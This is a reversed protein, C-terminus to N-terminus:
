SNLPYQCIFSLERDCSIDNWNRNKFAIELAVCNESTTSHTSRYLDWSNFTALPTGDSYIFYGDRTRDDLGIWLMAWDDVSRRILDKIFGQQSQSKIAALLGGNSKCINSADDYSKTVNMIEYCFDGFALGASCAPSVCKGNAVSVDDIAIDGHFDHGRIAEFVIQFSIPSNIQLRGANWDNGQQGTKFWLLKIHNDKTKIYVNLTNIDAGHMHYFFQLCQANSASLEPSILRTRENLIRPNSAELFMYYGSLTGTTHDTVPGTDSSSTAGTNREWDFDDTRDQIFGCINPKEFDCSFAPKPCSGQKLSLDDLALDGHYDSGRIAEFILRYSEDAHFELQSKLWLNEQSGSKSWLLHERGRETSLIVSLDGAGVGFMHYHFELCADSITPFLPTALRAVDGTQRPRSAEIYIYVGSKDGSTHDASPGTDESPTSGNYLHWDFDDSSSQLMNCPTEFDCNWVSASSISTTLINTTSIEEDPLNTSPLSTTTLTINNTPSSLPPTKAFGTLPESLTSLKNMAFITILYRRDPILTGVTVRTKTVEMQVSIVNNIEQVKIRYRSVGPTISATWSFILSTPHSSVIHLNTPSKVKNLSPSDSDEVDVQTTFNINANASGRNNNMELNKFVVSWDRVRESLDYIDFTHNQLIIEMEKSKTTYTNDFYELSQLCTDIQNGNWKSEESVAKIIAETNENAKFLTALDKTHQRLSKEAKIIHGDRREGGRMLLEVEINLQKLTDNVIRSFDENVGLLVKTNNTQAEIDHHINSAVIEFFESKRKVDDLEKLMLQDSLREQYQSSKMKVLSRNMQRMSGLMNLVDDELLPLVQEVLSLRQKEMLVSSNLKTINESVSNGLQYIDNKAQQISENCTIFANMIYEHTHNQSAFLDSTQYSGLLKNQSEKIVRIENIINTSFNKQSEKINNIMKTSTPLIYLLAAELGGVFKTLNSLLSLEPSNRLIPENMPSSQANGGFVSEQLIDDAPYLSPYFDDYEISTEKELMALHKANFSNWATFNIHVLDEQLSELMSLILGFNSDESVGEDGLDHRHLNMLMSIKHKMINESVEADMSKIKLDQIIEEHRNYNANVELSQNEYQNSKAVIVDLTRLMYNHLEDFIKLKESYQLNQAMQSSFKRLLSRIEEDRLQLDQAHRREMDTQQEQLASSTYVKIDTLNSQIMFKLQERLQEGSRQIKLKLDLILQRHKNLNEDARIEIYSLNAHITSLENLMNAIVVDLDKDHLHIYDTKSKLSDIEMSNNFSIKALMNYDNNLLKFNNQILSSTRNQMSAVLGILNTMQGQLTDNISFIERLERSTNYIAEDLNFKLEEYLLQTGILSDHVQTFNKSFNFFNVELANLRGYVENLADLRATLNNNLALKYQNFSLYLNDIKGSKNRAVENIIEIKQDNSNVKLSVDEILKTTNEIYKMQRYENDVTNQKVERLFKERSDSENIFKQMSDEVLKLSLGNETVNKTVIKIYNKLKQKAESLFVSSCRKNSDSYRFEEGSQRSSFSPIKKLAKTLNIKFLQFTQINNSNELIAHSLLTQNHQIEDMERISVKLDTIWNEQDTLRENLKEESKNIAVLAQLLNDEYAHKRLIKMRDLSDAVNDYSENIYDYVDSIKLANDFIAKNHDDSIKQAANIMTLLDNRENQIKEINSRINSLILDTELNKMMGAEIKRHLLSTMKQLSTISQNCYQYRESWSIILRRLNRKIFITENTINFLQNKMIQYETEMTQDVQQLAKINVTNNSIKRMMKHLSANSLKEYEMVDHHLNQSVHDNDEIRNRILNLSSNFEKRDNDMTQIVKSIQMGIQENKDMFNMQKNELLSVKESINQGYEDHKQLIGFILSINNLANNEVNNILNSQSSNVLIWSKNLDIATEEIASIRTKFVSMSTESIKANSTIRDTLENVTVLLGTTMNKFETAYLTINEKYMSLKEATDTKIDNISDMVTMFSANGSLETFRKLNEFDNLLMESTTNIYNYINFLDQLHKSLQEENRNTQQFLQSIQIRISENNQQNIRLNNETRNEISTLYINNEYIQKWIGKVNNLGEEQIIGISENLSKQKQALTVGMASMGNKLSNFELSINFLIAKMKEQALATTGNLYQVLKWYNRVAHESSNIQFKELQDLRAVFVNNWKEFKTMREANNIDSQYIKESIKSLTANKFNHISVRLGEMESRFKASSQNVRSDMNEELTSINIKIIRFDELLSTMKTKVNDANKEEVKSLNMLLMKNQNVKTDLYVINDGMSKNLSRLMKDLYDELKLLEMRLSTINTLTDYNVAKAEKEFIKSRKLDDTNNTVMKKLQDLNTRIEMSSDIVMASISKNFEVFKQVVDLGLKRNEQLTVNYKVDSSIAIEERLKVVESNLLSSLENVTTNTGFLGDFNLKTNINNEELAVSLHNIKNQLNKLSTEYYKENNNIRNSINKMHFLNQAVDNVITSVNKQNSTTSRKILRLADSQNQYKQIWSDNLHEIEVSLSAMNSFINSFAERIDLNQITTANDSKQLKEIDQENNALKEYLNNLKEYLQINKKTFNIMSDNLKVSNLDILMSNNQMNLGLGSIEEAHKKISHDINTAKELLHAFKNEMKKQSIEYIENHYEMGSSLNKLQMENKAIQNKIITVHNQNVSTYSKIMSMVESQNQYRQSWSDNLHEIENALSTLNSSIKSMSKRIDENHLMETQQLEEASQKHNVLQEFVNDLEDNIITYKEMLNILSNNMEITHMDIQLSNNQINLRSEYIEKSQIEIKNDISKAKESLHLLTNTTANMSKRQITNLDDIGSYVTELFRSHNSLKSLIEVDNKENNEQKEIWITEIVKLNDEMEEMRVSSNLMFEKMREFKTITVNNSNLLQKGVKDNTSVQNSIQIFQEHLSASDESIHELSKNHHNIRELIKIESEHIATFADSLINQDSVRIMKSLTEFGDAYKASSENIFILTKMFQKSHSEIQKENDLAKNLVLNAMKTADEEKVTQEIDFRNMRRDVFGLLQTNKQIDMLMGEISSRQLIFKEDLLGITENQRREGRHRHKETEVFETRFHTFNYTLNKVFDDLSKWKQSSAEYNFQIGGIDSQTDDLRKTLNSLKFHFLSSEDNLHMLKEGYENIRTTANEQIKELKDLTFEQVKECTIINSKNLKDMDSIFKLNAKEIAIVLDSINWHNVSISNWNNDVRELISSITKAFREESNKQERAIDEVKHSITTLALDNSSINNRINLVNQEHVINRIRLDNITKNHNELSNVVFDDMQKMLTINMFIDMDIKKFEEIAQTITTNSLVLQKINKEHDSIYEEVNEIRLHLHRTKNEINKLSQSHASFNEIIRLESENVSRLAKSLILDQSIKMSMKIKNLDMFLKRETKNIQAFGNVIDEFFFANNEQNKTLNQLVRGVNELQKIHERNHHHMIDTTNILELSSKTTKNWIDKIEHKNLITENTLNHLSNTFFKNQKLQMVDMATMEDQLKKITSTINRIAVTIENSLVATINSDQLHLVNLLMKNISVQETINEFKVQLQNSTKAVHSVSQNIEEMREDFNIKTKNLSEIADRQSDKYSIILMKQLKRINSNISTNVNNINEQNDLVSQSCSTIAVNISELDGQLMVMKKDVIGMEEKQKINAAVVGSTINSLVSFANGSDKQVIDIRKDHLIIANRVESISTNQESIQEFLSNEMENIEKAIATMEMSLNSVFNRIETQESFMTINVRQIKEVNTEYKLIRDMLYGLRQQIGNLEDNLHQMSKNSSLIRENMDRESTNFLDMMHLMHSMQSQKASKMLRKIVSTVNSLTKNNLGYLESIKVVNEDIVQDQIKMTDFIIGIKTELNKTLEKNQEIINLTSETFNSIFISSNGIQEITKIINTNGRKCINELEMLKTTQNNFKPLLIENNKEFQFKLSTLNKEIEKIAEELSKVKIATSSNYQTLLSVSKSYNSMKFRLDFIEDDFSKVTQNIKEKMPSLSNDNETIRLSLKMFKDAFDEDTKKLKESVYSVKIGLAMQEELMKIQDKVLMNVKETLNTPYLDNTLKELINEINAANQVTENKINIFSNNHSTHTGLLSTQLIEVERQLPTVISTVDLLANQVRNSEHKLLEKTHQLNEISKMIDSNNQEIAHLRDHLLDVSLVQDNNYDHLKQSINIKSNEIAQFSEKLVTKYQTKSDNEM